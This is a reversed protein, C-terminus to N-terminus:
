ATAVAPAPAAAQKITVAKLFKFLGSSRDILRRKVLEKAIVDVHIHYDALNMLCWAAAKMVEEKPVHTASGRTKRAGSAEAPDTVVGPGEGLLQRGLPEILAALAQLAGARHITRQVEFNKHGVNVLGGLAAMKASNPVGEHSIIEVLLRVVGNQALYAQMPENSKCFQAWASVVAEMAKRSTPRMNLTLVVRESLGPPAAAAGEEEGEEEGEGENGEVDEGAESKAGEGLGAAMSVEGVSEVALEAEPYFNALAVMAQLFEADELFRQQFKPHQCVTRMLNCAAAQPEEDPVALGLLMLEMGSHTAPRDESATTPVGGPGVALGHMVEEQLAHNEYLLNKLAGLAEGVCQVWFPHAAPDNRRSELDGAPPAPTAAAERRPPADEADGAGEARSTPAGKGPPAGKGGKADKKGHASGGPDEDDEDEHVSPEPTPVPEAYFDHAIIAMLPGLAGMSALEEQTSRSRYALLGLIGCAYRKSCWAAVSGEKQLLVAILQPVCALLETNDEIAGAALRVLWLMAERASTDRDDLAGFVKPIIGKAILQQFLAQNGHCMLGLSKAVQRVTANSSEADEFLEMLTSLGGQSVVSTQVSPGGQCVSGLLGAAGHKGHDGGHKVVDIAAKVAPSNVVGSLVRSAHEPGQKDYVGARRAALETDVLQWLAWLAADKVPWIASEAGMNHADVDFKLKCSINVRRRGIMAAYTVRSSFRHEFPLFSLCLDLTPQLVVASPDLGAGREVMPSTAGTLNAVMVPLAGAEVIRALRSPSERALDSLLGMCAIRASVNGHGMVQVVIKLYRPDTLQEKIAETCTLRWLAWAAAAQARWTGYVLLNVLLPITGAKAVARRNPDSSAINVLGWAADKRGGDTGNKLLEMLGKVTVIVEREAVPPTTDPVFSSQQKGKLLSSAGRGIVKVLPEFAGCAIIEEKCTPNAAISWLAIGASDRVQVARSLLNKVLAPVGGAKSVELQAEPQASAIQTIARAAIEQIEHDDNGLLSVLPPCAGSTAAKKKAQPTQCLVTLAMAATTRAKTDEIQIVGLVADLAGVQVLHELAADSGAGINHLALAAATRGETSGDKCLDILPRTANGPLLAIEEINLMCQSLVGLALAAATRAQDPGTVLLDVLPALMGLELAKVQLGPNLDCVSEVAAAAAQRCRMPQSSYGEGQAGKAGGKDGKGGKGGKGADKAGEELAAAMMAEREEATLVKGGLLRILAELGGKEDVDRQNPLYGRALNTVAIAAAVKAEESGHHMLGLLPKVAGIVAILIQTAKSNTALFGIAGAAATRGDDHTKPSHLMTVMPEIAGANIIRRVNDTTGALNKLATASIEKGEESGTMLMDVLPEIADALAILGMNNKNGDALDRLAAAAVEQAHLRVQLPLQERDADVSLLSVIGFISAREAAIADQAVKNGCALHRLADAAEIRASLHGTVLVDVLPQVVGAEVLANQNAVHKKAAFAGVAAAAAEQVIWTCGDEDPAGAPRRDKVPSLLAPNNAAAPSRLVRSLEEPVAMISKLPEIANLGPLMDQVAPHRALRQLAFAAAARAEHQGEASEFIDPGDEPRCGVVLRVLKEPFGARGLTEQMNPNTDALAVVAMAAARRREEAQQLRMRLAEAEAEADAIRGGTRSTLGTRTGPRSSAAAVVPAADKGKKDKDKGKGGAEASAAAEAETPPFDLFTLLQDMAPKDKGAEDQHQQIDTSVMELANAAVMKLRDSEAQKILDLIIPMGGDKGVRARCNKSIAIATVCKTAAHRGEAGTGAGGVVALLPPIAGCGMAVQRNGDSYLCLDELALSALERGKSSGDELLNVLVQVVTPDKTMDKDANPDMVLNCLAQEADAKGAAPIKSKLLAVLPMIAGAAIISARIGANTALNMIAGAAAIRSDDSGEKLLAVLTKVAGAGAILEQNRKNDQALAQLALASVLKSYDAKADRLWGAVLPIAGQEEHQFDPIAERCAASQSLVGIAKTVADKVPASGVALLQVLPPVAGAELLMDRQEDGFALSEISGAAAIVSSDKGTRLLEVLDLSRPVVAPGRREGGGDEADDRGKGTKVRTTKPAM